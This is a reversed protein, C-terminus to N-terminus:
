ILTDRKLLFTIRLVTGSAPLQPLYYTYVPSLIPSNNGAEPVTNLIINYNYRSDNQSSAKNQNLWAAERKILTQKLPSPTFFSKLHSM